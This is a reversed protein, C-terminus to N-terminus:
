LSATQVLSVQYTEGDHGLAQPLVELCHGFSLEVERRRGLALDRIRVETGGNRLTHKVEDPNLEVVSVLAGSTVVDITNNASAVIVERAEVVVVPGADDLVAAVGVGLEINSQRAAADRRGHREVEGRLFDLRQDPLIHGLVRLRKATDHHIISRRGGPVHDVALGVGLM